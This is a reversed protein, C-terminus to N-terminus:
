DHAIGAQNEVLQSGALLTPVCTALPYATETAAQEGSRGIELGRREEKNKLGNRQRKGLLVRHM